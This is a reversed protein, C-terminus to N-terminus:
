SMRACCGQEFAVMPFGPLEQSALQLQDYATRLPVLVPDIAIDRRAAALARRLADVAELLHRHHRRARPPIRARQVAEAAEAYLRAASELMPHHPGASGSGSAALVLLGALQSAVQRLDEFPRRAELIYAATEDSVTDPVPQTDERFYRDM